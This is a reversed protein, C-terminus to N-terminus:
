NSISCIMSCTDRATHATRYALGLSALSGAYRRMARYWYGRRAGAGGRGLLRAQPRSVVAVCLSVKQPTFRL